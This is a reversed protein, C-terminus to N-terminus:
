YVARNPDGGCQYNKKDGFWGVMFAYIAVILQMAHQLWDENHVQAAHVMKGHVVAEVRGIALKTQMAM